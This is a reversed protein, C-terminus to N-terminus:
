TQSYNKEGRVKLYCILESLECGRVSDVKCAERVDKSM